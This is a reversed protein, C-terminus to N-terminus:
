TAEHWPMDAEVSALTAQANGWLTNVSLGMARIASIAVLSILGAILVYEILGQGEEERLLRTIFEM